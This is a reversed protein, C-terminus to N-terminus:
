EEGKNEELVKIYKYVTTRSKINSLRGLETVNIENAKYQEYYKKFLPPITDVTTKVRGLKVGKAKANNLGSKIRSVTIEREMQSFVGMMQVMGLVMPDADGKTFDLTFAGLMVKVKKDKLLDLIELLDRMSRSIRSIETVILTDGESIAELMRNLEIRQRKTGSEYETYILKPEAGLEIVDKIQRDVSQKTDDTSCRCYGYVAM